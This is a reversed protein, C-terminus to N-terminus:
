NYLLVRLYLFSHNIVKGLIPILLFLYIQLLIHFLSSHLVYSIPKLFFYNNHDIIQISYTFISENLSLFKETFLYDYILIFPIRLLCYQIYIITHQPVFRQVHEIFTRRRTAETIMSHLFFDGAVHEDDDDM